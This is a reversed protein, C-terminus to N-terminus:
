GLHAMRIVDGDRRRVIAHIDLLWVTSVIVLFGRDVLSLDTIAELDKIRM